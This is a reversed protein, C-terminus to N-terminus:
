PTADTSADTSRSEFLGGLNVTVTSGEAWGATVRTDSVEVEVEVVDALGLDAGSDSSTCRSTSRSGSSPRASLYPAASYTGLANAGEYRAIGASEYGFVGLAM